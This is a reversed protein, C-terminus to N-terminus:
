RSAKARYVFTIDNIEFSSAITSQTFYLRISYIDKAQSRTTPTLELQHWSELNETSSKDALPTSDSNFQLVDNFDDDGNVLYGVSIGDADGKYSIKVNYVTKKSSPMGFDIDKTYFEQSDQSSQIPLFKKFEVDTSGDFVGLSLNNNMDTVFNTYYSSDTFLNTNYTWGNSDFDYIFCQNSNTSGDNPSRMMILSNTIPDYGLMVDKQSIIHGEKVDNILKVKGNVKIKIKKIKKM